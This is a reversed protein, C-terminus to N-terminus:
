YSQKVSSWDSETAAAIEEVYIAIDDYAVQAVGDTTPRLSALAQGVDDIISPDNVFPLDETVPDNDFGDLEDDITCDWNKDTMNVSVRCRFPIGPAYKGLPTQLHDVIAGTDTIWLSSVAHGVANATQMLYSSCIVNISITAEFVLRDGLVPDFVFDISGYHPFGGQDIVCPQESLGLATSKVLISGGGPVILFTPQHDGGTAPPSEPTDANFDCEVPLTVGWCAGTFVFVFAIALKLM